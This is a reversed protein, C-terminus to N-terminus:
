CNPLVAASQQAATAYCGGLLLWLGYRLMSGVRTALPLLCVSLWLLPVASHLAVRVSPSDVSQREATLSPGRM